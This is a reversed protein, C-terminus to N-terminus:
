LSSILHNIGASMATHLNCSRVMNILTKESTEPEEGLEWLIVWPESFQSLQTDLPSLSNSETKSEWRAKLSSVSAGWLSKLWRHDQVLIISHFTLSHIFSCTFAFSQNWIPVPEKNQLKTINISHSFTM